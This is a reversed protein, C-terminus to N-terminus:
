RFTIFTAKSGGGALVLQHKGDQIRTSLRFTDGPNTQAAAVVDDSLFNKEEPNEILVWEARTGSRSLNELAAAAGTFKIACDADVTVAGAASIRPTGDAFGSEPLEFVIRSGNKVALSGGLDIKPNTGAVELTCNTSIGGYKKGDNIRGVFISMGSGDGALLATSDDVRFVCNSGQVYVYRGTVVSASEAVLRNNWVTFSDSEGSLATSIAVNTLSGGTAVRLVNDHKVGPYGSNYSYNFSAPPRYKAGLEVIWESHSCPFMTMTSLDEVEFVANEGQIRVCQNTAYGVSSSNNGALMFGKTRFTGNSVLLTNGSCFPGYSLNVTNSCVFSGGDLVEVRHNRLGTIATDAATTGSANPALFVNGRMVCRGGKEVRFLNYRSYRGALICSMANDYLYGGDTVITASRQEKGYYSYNANFLSLASGEGSVMITDLYTPEGDPEYAASWSGSASDRTMEGSVTMTSGDTVKLWGTETNGNHSNTFKFIGGVHLQSHGKVELQLGTQSTYGLSMAGTNTIVAGDSITIHRNNGYSANGGNGCFYQGGFNWYGGKFITHVRAKNVGGADFGAFSLRRGTQETMDFTLTYNYGPTLGNKLQGFQVDGSATVTKSASGTFAVADSTGPLTGGWATPSAIDHSGDADPFDVAMAATAAMACATLITFARNKM